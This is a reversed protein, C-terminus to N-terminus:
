RRDGRSRESETLELAKLLVETLRIDGLVRGDKDVVPVDILHHAVMNALAEVLPQDPRVAALHSFPNCAEKATTAHALRMMRKWSFSSELGMPGFVLSAWGLLDPRNIVGTLKGAKDVVFIGRLEAREAFRRIVDEFPTNEDVTIALSEDLNFVDRVLLKRGSEKVAMRCTGGEWTDFVGKGTAHALHRKGLRLPM